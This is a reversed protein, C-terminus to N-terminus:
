VGRQRRYDTPSFGTATRFAQAFRSPENFGLSRAISGVSEHTTRLLEEARDMRETLQWKHPSLGTSAKFARCFHYPSLDVLAALEALSTSRALEARVHDKVRKVQWAALGGRVPEPRAESAQSALAALITTVATDSFLRGAPDQREAGSWLRDLLLAVCDNRFPAAHLKGFDIGHACASTGALATRVIAEPISLIRIVHPDDVMINTATHPAILFLDDPASMTSFRGAGLDSRHSFGGSLAQVLVLDDLPPGSADGAPQAAEIMDAFGGIARHARAFRASRGHLYYEAHSPLASSVGKAGTRRM